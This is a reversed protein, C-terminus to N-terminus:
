CKERLGSAEPGQEQRHSAMPIFIAGQLTERAAKSHIKTRPKKLKVM